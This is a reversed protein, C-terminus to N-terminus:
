SSTKKNTLNNIGLKLELNVQKQRLEETPLAPNYNKNLTLNGNNDIVGYIFNPPIITENKGDKTILEYFYNEFYCWLDFGPSTKATCELCKNFKKYEHRSIYNEKFLSNPIVIIINRPRFKNYAFNYALIHEENNEIMSTTRCSKGYGYNIKLGETLISNIKSEDTGHLLITVDQKCLNKLVARSEIHPRIYKYAHEKASIRIEEIIDSLIDPIKAEEIEVKENFKYFEITFKPLKNFPNNYTNIKLDILPLNKYYNGITTLFEYNSNLFISFKSLGQSTPIEFFKNLEGDSYCPLQKSLELCIAIITKIQYKIKTNIDVM